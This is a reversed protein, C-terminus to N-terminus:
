RPSGHSAQPAPENAPARMGADVPGGVEGAAWALNDTNHALGIRGTRDAVIVGGSGGVRRALEDIGRRAATHADDGARLRDIVFRTLTVRIIAEGHGTASAAGATDDAYTGCGPLPADGVRGQRKGTVGGTSTAAAVHGHRDVACAGVTGGGSPPPTGATRRALEQALNARQRPLIMAGADDRAFGHARAFHWAADGALLVHEGDDLVARAVDIPRRLSPVAAVAGVRLAAGDMIAADVEVTGDRTLAAGVGANFEPDDELARVAAQVADLAAGGRALVAL